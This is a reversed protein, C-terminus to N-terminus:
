AASTGNSVWEMEYIRSGASVEVDYRTNPEVKFFNQSRLQYVEPEKFIFQKPNHEPPYVSVTMSGSEVFFAEVALSTMRVDKWARANSIRTAHYTSPGELNKVVGPLKANM